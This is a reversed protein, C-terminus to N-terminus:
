SLKTFDALPAFTEHAMALLGLRRRRVAPDEAMVLVGEFFADVVPRLEAITGLAIDFARANAARAVKQIVEVNADYLAREVEEELAEREPAPPHEGKLINAVRKFTTAIPEFDPSGRLKALAFARAAADVLDDHGASLAAEAVDTPVGEATLAAKLRARFFASVEEEVEAAPKTARDGLLDLSARIAQSLVLHWGRARVIRIIALAARRLGFPDAAGSPGKGTSFIGVLTDFRDALGVLAGLNGEPLADEAGRPLYHEAIALAVDAPEGGRRAYEAGIIGQLEPFEFVMQTTLDAKALYAARALAWSFRDEADKQAGLRARELPDSFLDPRGPAEPAGPDDLQGALKDTLVFALRALRDVKDKVSGLARHFRVASLADVRDFLPKKQDETFFFAGDSFRATLVRRYGALSRGPDEVETNAVVVFCPLLEGSAKVVPLYRQHETMESILVEKPVELFRADFRGLLPVPWEVLQTIEELLADDEFLQGGAESALRRAGELIVARRRAPDAIVKREELLAEYREPEEAVAVPDPALFRHGRTEPGAELGAFRAPLARGAHSAVLWVVPRAFTSNSSGWRMSREFPIASLAQEVVGPLLEAATKGVQELVAYVYEGKPTERRVLDEVRVGQGRAFGELAKTPQGNKFAAKVPPGAVEVTRDEQRGSVEPILVALRRPTFFVRPMGRSLRLEDLREVLGDALAQAAARVERAPLEETGLEVFLPGTEGSGPRLEVVPPEEPPADARGLPFGMAERSELYAEATRKALDRIRLIYGQRETVSIAGKADLANFAHAAHLLHDYAPVVLKKEVLRETEKEMRDYLEGYLAVDLAEFSLKSYEVEDQRFVEGYKVGPAYALEYVDDVDQLYMALREMGYTLEGSVPRCELGGCQQFYTFQTAEMGDVWVEWGLGWAGLTPSEWNDEVFRIDHEEPHIGIAQLSELYLGQLDPPSPKLLVQFQHHRYLRNPNEGYRGDTPRRSPEVYAARWPEPGIARLFTNPNYTGAGKEADFPQTLLCGRETWFAM